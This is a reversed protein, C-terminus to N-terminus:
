RPLGQLIRTIRENSTEMFVKCSKAYKNLLVSINVCDKDLDEIMQKSIMETRALMAKTSLGALKGSNYALETFANANAQLKARLEADAKDKFCQAAFINYVNCEQAEHSFNNFALRAEDTLPSPLKDQAAAETVILAGISAIICINLYNMTGSM